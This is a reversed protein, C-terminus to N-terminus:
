NLYAAPIKPTAPKPSGFVHPPTKTAPNAMSRIPCRHPKISYRATACHIAVAVVHSSTKRVPPSPYSTRSENISFSQQTHLCNRGTALTKLNRPILRDIHAGHASTAFSLLSVTRCDSVEAGTFVASPPGVSFSCVVSEMLRQVSQQKRPQCHGM